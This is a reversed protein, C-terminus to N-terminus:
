KYKTFVYMYIYYFFLQSYYQLCPCLSITKQKTKNKVQSRKPDIFQSIKYVIEDFSLGSLSKGHADKLKRLFDTLEKRSSILSLLPSKKRSGQPHARRVLYSIINYLKYTGHLHSGKSRQDIFTIVPGDANIKFWFSFDQRKILSTNM